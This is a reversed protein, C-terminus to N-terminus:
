SSTTIAKKHKEIWDTLRTILREAGTANMHSGDLFCEGQFASDHNTLDLLYTHPKTACLELLREYRKYSESTMSGRREMPMNV